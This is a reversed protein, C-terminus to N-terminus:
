KLMVQKQCRLSKELDLDFLDGKFSKEIRENFISKREVSSRSRKDIGGQEWSEPIATNKETRTKDRRNAAFELLCPVYKM